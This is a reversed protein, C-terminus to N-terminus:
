NPSACDYLQQGMSQGLSGGSTGSLAVNHWGLRASELRLRSAAPQSTDIPIGEGRKRLRVDKLFLTIVIIAACLYAIMVWSYRDFGHLDGIIHPLATGVITQDLAALLLTLILGAFVGVLAWGRLHVGGNVPPVPAVVDNQQLSDNM